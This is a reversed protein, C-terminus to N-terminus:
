SGLLAERWEPILAECEALLRAQGRELKRNRYLVATEAVTWQPFPRAMLEVALGATLVGEQAVRLYWGSRGNRTVRTVIDEVELHRALTLCPSRPATVVLEVEGIRLRDGICITTEDLGSVRLNEGFGQILERGVESKWLPYHSAAYMLVARWEGGHHRRDAVEDGELGLRGVRLAGAVPQKAIATVQSEMEGRVLTAMNRRKGVLVAEVKM